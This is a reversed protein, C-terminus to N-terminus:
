KRRKKSDPRAKAKLAPCGEKCAHGEVENRRAQAQLMWRKAARMASPKVQISEWFDVAKSM